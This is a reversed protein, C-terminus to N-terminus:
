ILEINNEANRDLMADILNEKPNARHGEKRVRFIYREARHALVLTYHLLISALVINYIVKSVSKSEVRTSQVPIRLCWAVTVQRSIYRAYPVYSFGACPWVSAGKWNRRSLRTIIIFNYYYYYYYYM